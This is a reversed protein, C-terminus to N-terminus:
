VYRGQMASHVGCQARQGRLLVCYGATVSRRRETVVLMRARVLMGLLELVNISVNNFGTVYKSSGWFRFKEEASLESRFLHGTLLCYGGVASKSADTFMTLKPLRIVINYMPSSFHGGRHALRTDVFWRWFDLNDLFLPGLTVRRNLNGLGSPFAASPPMGVAPLLQGVYFNGPRM